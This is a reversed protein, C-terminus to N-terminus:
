ISICESCCYDGFAKADDDNSAKRSKLCVDNAPRIQIDFHAFLDVSHFADSGFADSVTGRALLVNCKYRIRGAVAM